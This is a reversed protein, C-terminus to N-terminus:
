LVVSDMAAPVESASRQREAPTHSFVRRVQEEFGPPETGAPLSGPMFAVQGSVALVPRRRIAPLLPRRARSDQRRREEGPHRGERCRWSRATPIRHPPGGPWLHM